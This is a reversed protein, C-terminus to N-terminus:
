RGSENEGERMFSASEMNAEIFAKNKDEDNLKRTILIFFAIVASM